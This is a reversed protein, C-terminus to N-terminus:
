VYRKIFLEICDRAAFLRDPNPIVNGHAGLNLYNLHEKKFEKLVKKDDGKLKVNNGQCIDLSPALTLSNGSPNAGQDDIIHKLVAEVINRLLFTGAAPFSKCNLGKAEKMLQVVLGNSITCPYNFLATSKPKASGGSSGGSTTTSGGTGTGGSSSGSTGSKGKTGVNFDAFVKDYLATAGLGKEPNIVLKLILHRLKKKAEADAFVVKLNTRDYSVGVKESHGSGELFRVPPNFRVNPNLLVDKEQTTWKLSLSHRYLEYELIFSKIEGQTVEFMKALASISKGTKWEDYVAKRSGLYGWKSKDGQGFHASAMLPMLADRSPAISCDVSLLTNKIEESVSPVLTEKGQPPPLLGTLLKYAAIRTNGEIVTYGSGSKVIYPREAGHNKGEAVIKKIFSALDEHEFLYEVIKGQSSLKTQTVIRPNRDDLVIDKLKISDYKFKNFM